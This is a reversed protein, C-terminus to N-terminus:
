YSIWCMDATKKGRLTRCSPSPLSNQSQLLVALYWGQRERGREREREGERKIEGGAKERRKQTHRERVSGGGGGGGERGGRPAHNPHAKGLPGGGSVGWAMEFGM